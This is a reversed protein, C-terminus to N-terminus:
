PMQCICFSCATNEEPSKCPCRYVTKGNVSNETYHVSEKSHLPRNCIFCLYICSLIIWKWSSRDDPLYINLYNELITRLSEVQQLSVNTEDSVSFEMMELLTHRNHESIHSLTNQTLATYESHSISHKLKELLIKKTM